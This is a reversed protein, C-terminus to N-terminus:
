GTLQKRLTDMSMEWWMEVIQGNEIRFIDIWSINFTKGSPAFGMYEGMQTGEDHGRVVVKDGEAIMEDITARFDPIATRRQAVFQKMEAPGLEWPGAQSLAVFRPGILEDVVALNGKNHVEEVYRRVLAKSQELSM